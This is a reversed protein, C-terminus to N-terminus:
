VNKAFIFKNALAMPDYGTSAKQQEVVTIPRTQVISIPGGPSRHRDLVWEVDVPYGYHQEIGIVAQAVATVQEDDLCPRERLRKPMDTEAVHGAAFDFASV